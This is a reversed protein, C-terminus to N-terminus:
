VYVEAVEDWCMNCVFKKVPIRYWTSKESGCSQCEKVTEAQAMLRMIWEILEKITQNQEQITDLLGSVRDRTQNHTERIMQMASLFDPAQMETATQQINTM